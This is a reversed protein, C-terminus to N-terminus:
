RRRGRPSPPPPAPAAPTRRSPGRAACSPGSPAALCERPTLPAPLRPEDVSEETSVVGLAQQFHRAAIQVSAEPPATAAADRGAIVERIALTAARRCAAEIDAGMLGDTAKALAALDVDEALPKGVTYIAFVERRAAENPPPLELRLELRGARLMAPDLLDPRSTAALVVVGKLEEIGDMETLLQSMVRDTVHSDASSGRRPTLAEIEDFFIICPSALKAKKFVERVGRESEGVWMSLLEPGKVSIFNIQSETAVAKALLTKGTGSPGTLLIGKPPSTGAQEFLQSHMLPWEIAERLAQKVEELGGVQDWRVNPIETFVERIASPEVEKLAEMFHEATVELQALLEYPLYEADMQVEPMVGRLTVMAAERSLSALDAGVFGHTVSALKELDVDDALPMGRTHVQLVELRGVRDPVGIVIERDLRGPRRLAPDLTNPVNTAGIVVVQGRSTLGDLLALLQAVVRREVQQHSGLEERKPAIADIEDIFLIAPAHAQAEEFVKRLREESEGYYKGIIEPGSITTFYASTENAVAKAILTKGCGPPGYLLVGKPPEIGLRDFLEPYRLPLEIMERIRLVEKHLGGIDEYTVGTSERGPREVSEGEVKTATSAGIVVPGKPDTAAVSFERYLGGMFTARVKDGETVALGDLVRAVYDLDAELSASRSSSLPTLVVTTAVPCSVTRAQVWEGLGIHANERLIGDMQILGKGREEAYAPLAKAVSVRKGEVELIDGVEAQLEAMDKPDLRVMGRGADRPLAEAVRLNMSSM